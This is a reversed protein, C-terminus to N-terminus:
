VNFCDDNAVGHVVTKSVQPQSSSRHWRLDICMHGAEVFIHGSCSCEIHGIHIKVRLYRLHHCSGVPLLPPAVQSFILQLDRHPRGDEFFNELKQAGLQM